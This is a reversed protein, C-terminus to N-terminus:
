KDREPQQQGREAEPREINERPREGKIRNYFPLKGHQEVYKDLWYTEWKKQQATDPVVSFEITEFEWDGREPARTRSRVQGRGIYVIDDGRRYRYIGCTTSPIESRDSVRQEFAPSVSIVWMSDASVWQPRFRRVRSDEHQSLARLWDQKLMLSNVQISRGRGKKSGGDATLAFSDEDAADDHFKFGLRRAEEDVFVTVRLKDSLQADAVFHANFAIAGRRISILPTPEARKGGKRRHKAWPSM